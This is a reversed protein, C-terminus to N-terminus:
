LHIAAKVSPKSAHAITRSVPMWRFQCFTNRVKINERRSINITFVWLTHSITVLGQIGITIINFSSVAHLSWILLIRLQPPSFLYAIVIKILGKTPKNIRNIQLAKPGEKKKLSLFYKKTHAHM